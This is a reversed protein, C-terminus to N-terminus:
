EALEEETKSKNEKKVNVSDAIKTKKEVKEISRSVSLVIGLSLGTFFLSTGGLSVFPLTLGTVPILNVNVAMHAFAQIAISLSLGIALMAGFAKPTKNVMRITRIVLMVYLLLVAVGGFMGYEEVIICYIYDSYAHPLFYSQVGNGPGVGLFGGRAIAMKAQLVQFADEASGGEMFIKLRSIWTDVRIWPLFDSLLILIAFLGIGLMLLSFVNRLEVKGIFMQLLCTFFLILANSLDYPAILLVTVLVPALLETNNVTRSQMLAMTRAVYLVLALKAFDATQFTIGVFPIRIWRAAGNINVGFFMTYILLPIAIAILITSVRAYKMYNIMHAVFMLGISGVLLVIHRVLFSETYTNNRQALIETSSYVTLVSFLSLLAVVLWIIKDGQLLAAARNRLFDTRTSM